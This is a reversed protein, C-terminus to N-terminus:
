TSSRGAPTAPTSRRTSRSATPTSWCGKGAPPQYRNVGSILGFTVTPTFDIALPFPNGMALSWDGIRVKDSDGLKAFPFPKGKKKPLLKILAVDGVKDLGVLVADYLRRRGPRMAHVPRDAPRRPLQHPRLRGPFHRRRFRCGSGGEMCVAVVAPHVKKIAAMREAQADLVTKEVDLSDGPAAALPAIALLGASLTVPVVVAALLRFRRLTKFFTQIM